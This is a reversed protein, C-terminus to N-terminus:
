VLEWLKDNIYGLYGRNQKTVYELLPVTDFNVIKKGQVSYIFLLGGEKVILNSYNGGLSILKTPNNKLYKLMNRMGILDRRHKKIHTVGLVIKNQKMTEHLTM